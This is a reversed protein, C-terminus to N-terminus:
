SYRRMEVRPARAGLGFEGVLSRREDHPATYLAITPAAPSLYLSTGAPWVASRSPLPPPPPPPRPAQLRHARPPEALAPLGRQTRQCRVEGARRLDPWGERFGAEGARRLNTCGEESKNNEQFPSQGFVCYLPLVPRGRLSAAMSSLLNSPLQIAFGSAKEQQQMSGRM